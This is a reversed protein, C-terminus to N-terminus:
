AAAKTPVLKKELYAAVANISDLNQPVLESDKVKIAFTAEIYAVLELVGTSDIIGQELFSAEDAWGNAQGFLFNDVIFQRIKEKYDTM